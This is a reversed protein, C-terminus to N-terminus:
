HYRLVRVARALGDQGVLLDAPVLRDPDAAEAVGLLPLVSAPLETRVIHGSEFPPLSAAGPWLLFEGEEAPPAPAVVSATSPGRSTSPAATGLVTDPTPVVPAAAVTPPSAPLSRPPSAPRTPLTQWLAASAALLIVAAAARYAVTRRSPGLRSPVVAERERVQRAFAERLRAGVVPSPHLDVTEAAVLRLGASLAEESRLLAGCADCSAAHDRAERGAADAVEAGRALDVLTDRYAHCNM